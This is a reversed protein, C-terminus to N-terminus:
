SLSTGPMNMESIPGSCESMTRRMEQVHCRQPICYKRGSQVPNGSHYMQHDFVLVLGPQPQLAFQVQEKVDLFCTEGGQLQGPGGSLYLQITLTSIESGDPRMYCGDHHPCSSRARTTACSVCASM